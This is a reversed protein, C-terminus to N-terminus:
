VPKYRLVIHSNSGTWHQMTVRHIRRTTQTVKALQWDGEMQCVIHTHFASLQGIISQIYRKNLMNNRECWTLRRSEIMEFSPSVQRGFHSCTAYDAVLVFTFLEEFTCRAVWSVVCLRSRTKDSKSKKSKGAAAGGRSKSADAADSVAAGDQQHWADVPPRDSPTMWRDPDAIYINVIRRGHRSRAFSEISVVCNSAQRMIKVASPFNQTTVHVADLFSYQRFSFYFQLLLALDNAM